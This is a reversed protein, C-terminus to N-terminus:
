PVQPDPEGDTAGPRAPVVSRGLRAVTCQMVPADVLGDILSSLLRLIVDDSVNLEEAILAPQVRAQSLPWRGRSVPFRSSSVAAYAEVLPDVTRFERLEESTKPWLILWM